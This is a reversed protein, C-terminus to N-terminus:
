MSVCLAQIQDLLECVKAVNEEPVFSCALVDADYDHGRHSDMAEIVDAIRDIPLGTAKSASIAEDFFVTSGVRVRWYDAIVRGLEEGQMEETISGKWDEMTNGKREHAEHGHGM